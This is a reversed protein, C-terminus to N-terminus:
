FRAKSFSSHDECTNNGSASKRTEPDKAYELDSWGLILLEFETDSDWSYEPELVSGRERTGLYYEM